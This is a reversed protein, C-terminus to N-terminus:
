CLFSESFNGFLKQAVKLLLPDSRLLDQLLVLLLYHLSQRHLLGHPVSLGLLDRVEERIESLFEDLLADVHSHLESVYM